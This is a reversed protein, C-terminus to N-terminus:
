LINDRLMYAVVSNQNIMFNLIHITKEKLMKLKSIKAYNDYIGM